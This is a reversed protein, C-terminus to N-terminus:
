TLHSIIRLTIEVARMGGKLLAQTLAVTSDVDQATVVPLVRAAALDDAFSM